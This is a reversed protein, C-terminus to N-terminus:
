RNAAKRFRAREPCNVFHNLGSSTYPVMAGLRYRLWYIPAQCGRCIGPEGVLSMLKKIADAQAAVCPGASSETPEDHPLQCSRCIDTM